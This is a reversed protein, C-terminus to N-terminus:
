VRFVIWAPLVVFVAQVLTDVPSNRLGIVIFWLALSYLVQVAASQRYARFYEFLARAGLGFLLMGAIVGPIGFDWFFYLLISFEPNIGGRLSEVPWLSTVLRRRPLVPKEDWLARPIPRTVLDGFITGGYTYHLKSPIQGLAAAL